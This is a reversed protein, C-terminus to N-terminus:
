SEDSSGLDNIITVQQGTHEIEQKDRWKAPQRNKLWAMAAGTDPPYHKVTNHMVIKGNNSFVKEESHSYGLARHYLAAAVNADANVKGEKISTCFSPHSHKWRNITAEDVNIFKALEVDTAGLLCYNYVLADYEKKYKTPRGQKTM